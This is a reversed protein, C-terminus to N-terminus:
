EEAAADKAEASPNNRENEAPGDIEAQAEKEATQAASEVAAEVGESVKVLLNGELDVQGSHYLYAYAEKVSAFVKLDPVTKTTGDENPSVGDFHVSGDTEFRAQAMYGETALAQTMYEAYSTVIGKLQTETLDAGEPYIKMDAEPDVIEVSSSEPTIDTKGCAVFVSATLLVALLIVITKKM